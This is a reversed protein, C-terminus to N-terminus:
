YRSEQHGGHMTHLHLLETTNYAPPVLSHALLVLYSFQLQLNFRQGLNHAHTHTHTCLTCQMCAIMYACACVCVCMCVYVCLTYNSINTTYIRM